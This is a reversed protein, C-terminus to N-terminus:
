LEWATWAGGSVCVPGRYHDDSFSGGGWGAVTSPNLIFSFSGTSAAQSSLNVYLPTGTHVNQVFFMVRNPNTGMIQGSLRNAVDTWPALGSPGLALATSTSVPEIRVKQGTTWGTVAVAAVGIVTANTTGSIPLLTNTLSVQGTVWAAETLNSALLGSIGSLLARSQSDISTVTGTVAVTTASVTAQVVGSVAIPPGNVITANIAGGTVAIPGSNSTVTLGTVSIPNVITVGPNGTVAVTGNSTGGVSTVIGSIAIISNGVTVTPTNSISISGGTVAVNHTGTVAIPNQVTVGPTNSIQVQPNGTVAVAGVTLNLGSVNISAAFDSPQMQRWGGTTLAAGNYWVLSSDWLLNFAQTGKNTDFPKSYYRFGSTSFDPPFGPM